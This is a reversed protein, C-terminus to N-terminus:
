PARRPPLAHNTIRESHPLLARDPARPSGRPTAASIVERIPMGVMPIPHARGMSLHEDAVIEETHVGGELRLEDLPVRPQFLGDPPRHRRTLPEPLPSGAFSCQKVRRDERPDGLEGILLQRGIRLHHSTERAACRKADAEHRRHAKQVATM